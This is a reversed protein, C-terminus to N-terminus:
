GFFIIALDIHTFYIHVMIRLQRDVITDGTNRRDKEDFATFHYILQYASLGLRVENLLDFRM